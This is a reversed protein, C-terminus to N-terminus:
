YFRRYLGTVLMELCVAVLPGLVLWEVGLDGGAVAATIAVGALVLFAAGALLPRPV